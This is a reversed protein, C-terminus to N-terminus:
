KERRGRKEVGRVGQEEGVRREMWRMRGEFGSAFSYASRWAGGETGRVRVSGTLPVGPM